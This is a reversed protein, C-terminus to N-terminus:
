LPPLETEPLLETEGRVYNMWYRHAADSAPHNGWEPWPIGAYVELRAHDPVYGWLYRPVPETINWVEHYADASCADQWQDTIIWPRVCLEATGEPNITEVTAAFGTIGVGTHGQVGLGTTAWAFHEVREPPIIRAAEIRRAVDLRPDDEGTAILRTHIVVSTGFRQRKLDDIAARALREAEGPRHKSLVVPGRPARGAAIGFRTALIVVVLATTALSMFILTKRM